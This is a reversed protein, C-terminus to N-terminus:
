KYNNLKIIIIIIVSFHLLQIFTWKHYVKNTAQVQSQQYTLVSYSFHFLYKYNELFNEM